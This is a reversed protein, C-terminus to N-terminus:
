QAASHTALEVDKIGYETKLSGLAEGVVDAPTQYSQTMQSLKDVATPYSDGKYSRTQSLEQFQAASDTLATRLEQLTRQRKTIQTILNSRIGQTFEKQLTQDYVAKRLQGLQASISDASKALDAAVRANQGLQEGHGAGNAIIGESWSRAAAVLDKEAANGAAYDARGQALIRSFGVAEQHAAGGCGCLISLAMPFWCYSLRM